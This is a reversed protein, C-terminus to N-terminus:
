SSISAMIKLATTAAMEFHRVNLSRLHIFFKCWEVYPQSIKYDSIDEHPSSSIILCGKRVFLFVFM